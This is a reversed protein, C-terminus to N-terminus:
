ALLLPSHNQSVRPSLNQIGVGVRIGRNALDETECFEVPRSSTCRTASRGSSFFTAHRGGVCGLPAVEDWKKSKGYGGGDESRKSEVACTGEGEHPAIESVFRLSQVPKYKGRPKMERRGCWGDHAENQRGGRVGRAPAFVQESSANNKEADREGRSEPTEESHGQLHGSHGDLPQGVRRQMRRLGPMHM